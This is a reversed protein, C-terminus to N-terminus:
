KLAKIINSLSELSDQEMANYVTMLLTDKADLLDEHLRSLEEYLNNYSISKKNIMAARLDGLIHYRFVIEYKRCGVLSIDTGM